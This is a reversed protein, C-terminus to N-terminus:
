FTCLDEFKCLKRCWLLGLAWREDFSHFIRRMIDKLATDKREEADTLEALLSEIRSTRYRKAGKKSSMVEYEEPVRKLAM